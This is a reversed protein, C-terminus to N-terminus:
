RLDRFQSRICCVATGYAYLNRLRIMNRVKLTPRSLKLENEEAAQEIQDVKHRAWAGSVDSHFGFLNVPRDLELDNRIRRQYIPHIRVVLLVEQFM